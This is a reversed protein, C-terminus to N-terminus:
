LAISVRDIAVRLKAEVAVCITNDVRTEDNPLCAACGSLSRHEVLAREFAPRDTIQKPSPQLGARHLFHSHWWRPVSQLEETDYKGISVAGSCSRSRVPTNTIESNRKTKVNISEKAAKTCETRYEWLRFLDAGSIFRLEEGYENFSMPRELTLRATLQAEEKLHFRSAIGYARFSNLATFLSPTHDKLLLRIRAATADMQYKQCTALLSLADEFGGPLCPDVPYVATLLRHLTKSDETLDIVPSSREEEDPLPGPATFMDEFVVSAMGLVAKHVHFDVRDCSRIILDADTRDFPPGFDRPQEDSPRPDVTEESDHLLTLVDSHM